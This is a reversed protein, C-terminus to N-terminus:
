EQHYPLFFYKTFYSMILDLKSATEISTRKYQDTLKEYTM